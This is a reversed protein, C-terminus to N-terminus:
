KKKMLKYKKEKRLKQSVRQIFFEIETTKTESEHAIQLAKWYLNLAELWQKKREHYRAIEILAEATQAGGELVEKSLIYYSHTENERGQIECLSALARFTESLKIKKSFAQYLKVARLYYEEAKVYNGTFTLVNALSQYRLALGDDEDLYLQISLELYFVAEEFKGLIQKIKSLFFSGESAERMKNLNLWLVLARWQSIEAEEIGDQEFYLLAYYQLTNALSDHEQIRAFVRCSEKTFNMASDFDELHCSVEALLILLEAEGKYYRHLQCLNKAKLFAEKAKTWNEISVYAQGLDSYLMGLRIPSASLPYIFISRKLYEIAKVNEGRLIAVSALGAWAEAIGKANNMQACIEAADHFGKEAIDLKGMKCRTTALLRMSFAILLSVNLEQAIQLAREYHKEAELHNGVSLNQTGAEMIKQWDVLIKENM